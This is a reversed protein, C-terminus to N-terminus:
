SNINKSDAISVAAYNKKAARKQRNTKSSRRHQQGVRTRSVLGSKSVSIRKAKSQRTKQKM